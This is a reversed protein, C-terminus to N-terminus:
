KGICFDKFVVDLIDDSSVHGTIREICKLANRLKQASIATDPFIDPAYENLFIHIHEICRELQQRYRAHTIRPHEATPEGCLECLLKEFHRLFPQVIDTTPQKCTIKLVNDIQALKQLETMSLLDIKNAILQIRKGLLKNADLDLEQLYDTQYDQASQKYTSINRLLERADTLLLILDANHLCEKARSIGELEVVDKTHKRLGATDVNPPGVIATRVGNRLMEGQRQDNLHNRIETIIHRLEKTLHLVVDDEINEEEAFDIYAELHAACRILRKRWNDYVRSLAGASQLMAQKRQAETEAHILDALGEVETLDIKGGYFARKTFEGATASRLGPVKGLADLMAAIVALSGHIQFECSDEGTFSAPGPFWLVLGKDIIEKTEPHYISKLYAYRAKLEHRNGLLTQLAHRTRPGSVRIVSVGCKGYGSSLSFITCDAAANTLNYTCRRSYKFYKVMKFVNNM